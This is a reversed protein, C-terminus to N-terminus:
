KAFQKYVSWEPDPQIMLQLEHTSVTEKLHSFGENVTEEDKTYLVFERMGGTTITAVHITQCGGELLEVIRDEIEGLEQAEDDTPLGHENPSHLPVAIGVQDPFSGDEALRGVGEHVRVFLPGGNHEGQSVKWPGEWNPEASTKKQRFPWM